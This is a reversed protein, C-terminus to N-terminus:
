SVKLLVRVQAGFPYRALVTGDSPRMIEVGRGSPSRRMVHNTFQEGSAMRGISHWFSKVSGDEPLADWVTQTPVDQPFLRHQAGTKASITRANWKQHLKALEDKTMWENRM